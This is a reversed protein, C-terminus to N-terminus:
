RSVQTVRVAVDWGAPGLLEADTAVQVTLTIEDGGWAPLEGLQVDSAALPGAHLTEGRRRVELEAGEVLAPDGAPTVSLVASVPVAM